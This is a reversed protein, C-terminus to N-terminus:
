HKNKILPAAKTHPLDCKSCLSLGSLDKDLFAKLMAQFRPGTRMEVFGETMINGIEMVGESDRCACASVKGDDYVILNYALIPCLHIQGTKTPMIDVLGGFNDPQPFCAYSIKHLDIGLSTIYDAHKQPSTGDLVCGRIALKRLQGVDRFADYLKKLKRSSDEFKAGVYIAEYSRKDYGSFSAQVNLRGTKAFEALMAIVRDGLPTCNTNTEVHLGADLATQFYYPLNRALLPEGQAGSFCIKQIGTAKMEQIIREYVQESM